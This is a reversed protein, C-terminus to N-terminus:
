LRDVSQYAKPIQHCGMEELEELIDMCRTRKDKDTNQKYVNLLAPVLHHSVLSMQQQIDCIDEGLVLVAHEAVRLTLDPNANPHEELARGMREIGERFAESNLWIRILEEETRLSDRELKGLFGCAAKRVDSASDNLLSPLYERCKAGVEPKEINAAYVEACGCRQADTGELCRDRLREAEPEVFAALCALNAGRRQTEKENNQIMTEVLDLMDAAECHPLAHQIFAGPQPSRILRRTDSGVAQRFVEKAREPAATIAYRLFHICVIRVSPCPDKAAKEALDLYEMRRPPHPKLYLKALTCFAKGRDTNIGDTMWNDHPGKGMRPEYAKEGPVEPDPAHTVWYELLNEMYGSVEAPELEELADCVPRINDPDLQTRFRFIVNEIWQAPAGGEAIGELIAAIYVSHYSEDMQEMALRYFRELEEKAREKLESALERRGGSIQIPRTVYDQPREESYHRMARLWERDGMKNIAHSEIPPGVWQM